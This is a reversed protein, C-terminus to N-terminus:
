RCQLEQASRNAPYHRPQPMFHGLLPRTFNLRATGSLMFRQGSIPLLM